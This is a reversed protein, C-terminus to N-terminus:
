WADVNHENYYQPGPQALMQAIPRLGMWWQEKPREHRTM